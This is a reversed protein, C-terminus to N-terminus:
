LRIIKNDCIGITHLKCVYEITLTISQFLIYKVYYESLLCFSLFPPTLLIIETETRTAIVVKQKFWSQVKDAGKFTFHCM